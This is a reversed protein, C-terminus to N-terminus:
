AGFYNCKPQTSVADMDQHSGLVWGVCVWTKIAAWCGGLVYGHRWQHGAGVWYMGMDGNSSLLWVGAGNDGNSSLLWPGTGNSSLLWVGAGNDGNSSLLWPGTGNSSLLWVGAGNDGNSSLLWPGTGNSSLLWLGAGNDGNSSLLWSCHGGVLAM